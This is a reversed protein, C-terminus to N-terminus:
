YLYYLYYFIRCYIILLYIIFIICFICFFRNKIYYVSYHILTKRKINQLIIRM